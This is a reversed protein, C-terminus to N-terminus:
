RAMEDNFIQLAQAQIRFFDEHELIKAERPRPLGISINALIGMPKKSFLILRDALYIAEEISHSVFLTTTKTKMWIAQVRDRTFFRTTYDLSAFPEDM